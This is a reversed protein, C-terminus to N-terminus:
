YTPYETWQTELDVTWQGGIGLHVDAVTRGLDSTVASSIAVAWQPLTEITIPRWPVTVTHWSQRGNDDVQVDIVAHTIGTMDTTTM